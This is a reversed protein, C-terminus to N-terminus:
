LPGKGHHFFIGCLFNYAMINGDPRIKMCGRRRNICEFAETFFGIFIPRIMMEAAVAAAMVKRDRQIANCATASTRLAKRRTSM